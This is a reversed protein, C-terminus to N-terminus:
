GEPTITVQDSDSADLDENPNPYTTNLNVKNALGPAVFVIAITKLLGGLLFPLCGILFAKELSLHLTLAMFLSGIFLTILCGFLAIWFVSFPKKNSKEYLFGVVYAVILFSILYGGTPGFLVGIGSRGESFVPFGILGVLLYVFVSITGWKKGLVIPTLVVFFTQLTIPVISIPTIPISIYAGVAILAAFLAALVMKKIKLNIDESSDM